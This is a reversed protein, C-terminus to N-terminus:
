SKLREVVRELREASERFYELGLDSESFEGLRDPDSALIQQIEAEREAGYRVIGMGGLHIVNNIGGLMLNVPLKNWASVIRRKEINFCGVLDPPASEVTVYGFGLDRLEPPTQDEMLAAVAM